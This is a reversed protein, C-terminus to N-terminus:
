ELAEAERLKEEWTKERYRNSEIVLLMGPLRM